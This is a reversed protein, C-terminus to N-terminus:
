RRAYTTCRREKLRHLSNTTTGCWPIQAAMPGGASRWTQISTAGLPVPLWLCRYDWKGADRAEFEPWWGVMGPYRVSTVKKRLVLSALLDVLILLPLIPVEFMGDLAHSCLPRPAAPRTGATGLAKLSYRDDARMSCHGRQGHMFQHTSQLGLAASGYTPHGLDIALNLPAVGM